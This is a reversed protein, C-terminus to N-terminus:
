IDSNYSSVTYRDLEDDQSEIVKARQRTQRETARKRFEKEYMRLVESRIKFATSAEGGETTTSHSSSSLTMGAKMNIEVLRVVAGEPYQRLYPIKHRLTQTIKVTEVESVDACLLRPFLLTQIHRRTLDSWADKLTLQQQQQQQSRQPNNATNIDNDDQVKDLQKSDEENSKNNYVADVITDLYLSLIICKLCLPHLLCPAGEVSQYFYHTNSSSINMPVYYNPSRDIQRSDRSGKTKEDIRATTTVPTPTSTSTNTNAVLQFFELLTSMGRAGCVTNVSSLKDNYRKYLSEKNINSVDCEFSKTVATFAATSSSKQFIKEKGIEEHLAIAESVFPLYEVDFRSCLHSYVSASSNVSELCQRQFHQLDTCESNHVCIAVDQDAVCVRSAILQNMNSKFYENNSSFSLYPISSSASSRDCSSHSHPPLPLNSQKPTSDNITTATAATATNPNNEDDLFSYILPFLSDSAISGLCFSYKSKERPCDVGLFLISKLDKKSIHETCIPCKQCTNYNTNM